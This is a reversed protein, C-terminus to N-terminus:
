KQLTHKWPSLIVTLHSGHGDRRGKLQRVLDAVYRLFIDSVALEKNSLLAKAVDLNNHSVVSVM